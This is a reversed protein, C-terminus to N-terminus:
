EQVAGSAIELGASSGPNIAPAEAAKVVRKFPAFRDVDGQELTADASM